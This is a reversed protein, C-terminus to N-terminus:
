ATLDAKVVALPRMVSTAFRGECRARILNKAFDDANSSESWQVGVGEDDTELRAAGEGLTHAVGEAQALSVVVPVGYLRRASADYPLGRYEITNASSLALEIAEWDNAHMVFASAAHGVTELKTLTKRLTVLPSTAYAQTQIGSTGDIDALAMAEVAKELGYLLEDAIFQELTDNDKFWYRPVGESLHAVVDLKDEVRVTTYVSTPKTGGDAVVAANNTRVSQRLYAYEGVSRIKSPLVALLSNAPRGLEVPSAEFEQGVVVSGSTALAKEGEAGRNIKRVVEPAMRKFAFQQRSGADGYSDSAGVERGVKKAFDLTKEEAAVEALAREIDKLQSMVPDFFAKEEVTMSRNQSYAKEAVQQAQTVQPRLQEYRQKLAEKRSMQESRLSDPQRQLVFPIFLKPDSPLRVAIKAGSM